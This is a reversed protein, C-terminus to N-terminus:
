ALVVRRKSPALNLAEMIRPSFKGKTLVERALHSKAESVERVETTRCSVNCPHATASIEVALTKHLMYEVGPFAKTETETPPAGKQLIFGVSLGLTGAEALAKVAKAYDTDLNLMQARVKWGKGAHLTMSRMVAVPLDMEHEYFMNKNKGLYSQTDMGEPVLVEGDMDVDSTTAWAVIELPKGPPQEVTTAKSGFSGFIGVRTDDTGYGAKHALARLRNITDTTKM